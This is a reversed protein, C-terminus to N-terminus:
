RPAAQGAEPGTGAFGTPARRPDRAPLLFSPAIAAPAQPVPLAASVGAKRIVKAVYGNRLGRAEDGTNYLSLAGLLAPKEARYKAWTAAYNQSLITTGIRINTCPDFLQAPTVNYRRLWQSNVQMLGMDPRRGARIAEVAIREAEAVTRPYHSRVQTNVAYANGGSEHRIIALTTDPHVAVSCQLILAMLDPM